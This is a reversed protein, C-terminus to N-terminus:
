SSEETLRIVNAPADDSPVVSACAASLDGDASVVTAAWDAFPGNRWIGSVVLPVGAHLACTVGTEGAAPTAIPRARSTVVVDVGRDLPCHGGPRLANCPFAAEGLSHCRHVEHGANTLSAASQEIAWDDTGVVLVDLTRTAPALSGPAPETVERHRASM